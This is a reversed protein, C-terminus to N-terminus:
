LNEFIINSSVWLGRISSSKTCEPRPLGGIHLPGRRRHVTLYAFDGPESRTSRRAVKPVLVVTGARLHHEHGDMEVLGSGSVGVVLVDVEENVHEGVGRGAPFRVLNVNIDDGQELTWVVGARQGTTLREYLDVITARRM